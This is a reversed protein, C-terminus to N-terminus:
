ERKVGEANKKITQRRVYIQQSILDSIFGDWGSQPERAQLNGSGEGQPIAREDRLCFLREWQFPRM